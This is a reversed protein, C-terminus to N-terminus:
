RPAGVPGAASAPRIAAESPTGTIRVNTSLYLTLLPIDAFTYSAEGFVAACGEAPRPLDFVFENGKPELPQEKWSSKRFDRTPAAATWASVKKPAIDSRVRLRIGRESEQIDWALRPFELKGAVKMAFAAVSGIVRSMDNLGHGVNPVYLIYKEGVLDPYYLNAADLTWYPDNSGLLIFKPMTLRQRYEWPDVLATLKHGAPTEMKEQLGKETYDRIQESYRGYSALQHKMQARMNLVDIVMPAIGAVRKDAAGTLWTTWGRKSGGTVVFQRIELNWQKRAFDQVTDMARVAAKTMPLLLPWDEEGTQLYKEFTLSIIADEFLNDFMPQFPVQKIVAVPMRTAKAIGRAINSEKPLEASKEEDQPGRWRGGAIILIAQNSVTPGDPRLIFLKHHWPIGRWTQSTMRLEAILDPGEAPPADVRRWGYSPDPKAVYSHLDARAVAAWVTAALVAMASRSM